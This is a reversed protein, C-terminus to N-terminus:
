TLPSLIAHCLVHLTHYSVRTFTQMPLLPSGPRILSHSVNRKKPIPPNPQLHM